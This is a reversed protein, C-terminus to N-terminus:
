PDRGDDDRTLILVEEGDRHVSVRLLGGTLLLRLEALDRAEEDDQANALETVPEGDPTTYLKFLYSTMPWRSSIAVSLVKTDYLFHLKEFTRQRVSSARLGQIDAISSGSRRCRRPM